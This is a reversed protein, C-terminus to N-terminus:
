VEKLGAAALLRLCEAAAASDAFARKPIFAPYDKSIYILITNDGNRFGCLSTLPYENTGTKSKWTLKEQTIELEIPEFMLPNQQFHKRAQRALIKNRFLILVALIILWGLVPQNHDEIWDAFSFVIMVIALIPMSIRVFWSERHRLLSADQSDNLTSTFQLKM